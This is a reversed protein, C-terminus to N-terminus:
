PRGPRTASPSQGDQQGPPEAGGQGPTNGDQGPATASPKESELTSTSSEVDPGDDTGQGPATVSPNEPQQGPATGSQGPTTGTQGPPPGDDRGPNEVSQGPATGSQGPTSETQGPAFGSAGPPDNEGPVSGDDRGPNEVLQGPADGRDASSPLDFGVISAASSVADQLAPPLTNAAALGGTAGVTLAVAAAAIAVRRRRFPIVPALPADDSRTASAPVAAFMAALHRQTLDEDLPTTWVARLDAALALLREDDSRTASTPVAAFMADLHRRATAEDPPTTWVARLDDALALMQEDDSIPERAAPDLQGGM